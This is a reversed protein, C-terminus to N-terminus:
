KFLANWTAADCMGSVELGADQQFAKVAKETNEGFCGDAKGYLYGLEKLRQQMLLVDYLYDNKKFVQDFREYAALPMLSANETLRSQKNEPLSFMENLTVMRYGAAHLMPVLQTIVELDYDTTHFLIIDGPKLHAMIDDATSLSGEQTWYAIGYYGMQRMYAHTRQDCRNDGGRPRLFHMQYDVGLALSVERNQQWIQYALEEDSQSYLGSHSQTHNEIEFGQSVASKLVPALRAVNEGIPFITGKGDYASIIRIIEHLNWSQNCDDITLAVIKEETRSGSCIPLFGEPVDPYATTIKHPSVAAPTQPKTQSFAPLDPPINGQEEVTNVLRTWAPEFLFMACLSLILILVAKAASSKPRGTSRNAM